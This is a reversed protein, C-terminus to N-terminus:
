RVQSPRLQINVFEWHKMVTHTFIAILLDWEQILILTITRYFLQGTGKKRKKEKKTYHIRNKIM